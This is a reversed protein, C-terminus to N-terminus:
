LRSTVSVPGMYKVFHDVFWFMPELAADLVTNWTTFSNHFLSWYTLKFLDWKSRFKRKLGNCLSNIRWTIRAM